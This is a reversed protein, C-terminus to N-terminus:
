TSSVGDAYAHIMAMFESLNYPKMLLRSCGAELCEQQESKTTFSTTAVIPVTPLRERIHRVLTLGDCDPLIIDVVVLDPRLDLLRMAEACNAAVLIEYEREVLRKVTKILTVNDEVFLVRM